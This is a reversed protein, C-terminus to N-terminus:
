KHRAVHARKTNRKAFSAITRRDGFILRPAATPQAPAYMELAQATEMAPSGDALTAGDHPGSRTDLQKWYRLPLIIQEGARIDLTRRFAYRVFDDISAHYLTGSESDLVQVRRIEGAHADWFDCRFAWAGGYIKVMHASARATRLLTKDAIRVNLARHSHGCVECRARREKSANM